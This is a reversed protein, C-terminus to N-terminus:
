FKLAYNPSIPAGLCKFFRSNAISCPCCNTNPEIKQVQRYLRTGLGKRRYAKKVYFSAVSRVPTLKQEGPAKGLCIDTISADPDPSTFTRRYEYSILAWAVLEREQNRILIATLPKEQKRDSRELATRPPLEGTSRKYATRLIGEMTGKGRMTLRSCELFEQETFNEVLKDTIRFRM